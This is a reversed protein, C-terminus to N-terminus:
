VATLIGDREVRGWFRGSLQILGIPSRTIFAGEKDLVRGSREESAAFGHNVQFTSRCNFLDRSYILESDFHSNSRNLRM